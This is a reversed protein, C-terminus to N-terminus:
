KRLDILIGTCNDLGLNDSGITTACCSDTLDELAKQVNELTREKNSFVTANLENVVEETTKM